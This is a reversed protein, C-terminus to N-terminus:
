QTYNKYHCCLCPARYQYVLFHKFAAKEKCIFQYIHAGLNNEAIGVASGYDAEGAFLLEPTDGHAARIDACTYGQQNSRKTCFSFTDNLVNFLYVTAVLIYVFAEFVQACGNFADISLGM